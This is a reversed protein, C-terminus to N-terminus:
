EARNARAADGDRRGLGVDVTEGQIWARPNDPDYLLAGAGREVVTLETGDLVPHIATEAWTGPGSEVSGRGDPGVGGRRADREGMGPLGSMHCLRKQSFGGFTAAGGAGDGGGTQGPRVAARDAAVAGDVGGGRPRAPAATEWRRVPTGPSSIGRVFPHPVPPRYRCVFM